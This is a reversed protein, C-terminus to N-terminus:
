RKVELEQRVFLVGITMSMVIMVMLGMRNFIPIATEYAECVCPSSQNEEGEMGISQATVPITVTAVNGIGGNDDVAVYTFTANGVFAGDPDFKVGDSQEQTLNQEAMVASCGDAMYLVGQTVDPLEKIMFNKVAVGMADKGSLNLINVPGLINLIVPNLKDDTIPSLTTTPETTGCSISGIDSGEICDIATLTSSFVVSILLIGMIIKKFQKM